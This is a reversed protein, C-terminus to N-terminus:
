SKFWEFDGFQSIKDVAKDVLRNYYDKDIDDEKGLMKVTESELWRFGKAGSASHYDGDKERLLEGGGKGKQIPCFAGAKGIFQYDHEGENLQENMDLYLATTVNKTECMDSFIVPEESFLKKFVYPEAFQKGTATWKGDSKQKAVYVADNVLCFKSYTEELDFVYGYKKGFEIVFDVIYQDINPIKISDTKVHAVVYGQEQVAFMLDIMFLAGRKAVINDINKPDKFPNDFKASTMGYVINIVIKLAYALDGVEDESKLYKALKGDLMKRAKDLEGNKIALRAQVLDEFNKTYPGFVNMNIASTPHMSAVDLLAVDEYMGPESYVYGGEGVDIGRYTSKGFDYKYGPFMHTLDTYEFKSQPNRDNGFIIKATHRQTTDNETLGSIDALIQRAVFDAKRDEFVAETAEVDNKCYEIVKDIMDDPVPEDWPIAMEIHNIGLAIMFKKLSQKVTSFELIDTFSINYAERFMANRSGDIIKQSLNYIQENTYGLHRAYLIHNDYRRCNFGVLKMSFLQEIEEPKPNMMVVPDSGQAKWVVLLMNPYVEVDFFVLRDDVYNNINESEVESKFEMDAVVKLAAAAQNTSNNAFSMVYPRLDTVDYPLDSEYADQLIKHIFDVSPKTSAHIEKNLNRKILTRLGKESKVNKDNIMSTDGKMPLGSNITTFGINNCKTLQRRLSSDGTFVKVEVDDDYIRSLKSVDGDYIYHLHLGKGSKSVETYTLPWERAAEMNLMLDKEGESNKIDFDIVIHQEPVQVYHLTGTDIDKLKKKNNVWKSIPTGESTTTQAPQELYTSDFISEMSELVIPNPVKEPQMAISDFKDSNFGSYYSRIQKGDVRTIDYFEDFYSKLEERFKHRAQKYEILAEDCYTKYMDYAQSLSVGDQEKFVHFYAEVFNYFIDTQLMMDIPKYNAYYNKGYNQYVELCHQAIAGLEFDVQSILSYYRTPELKNGTPKVDILRRIIGSKSDTIKVPKNTAMFLFCNVRSMYSPKYKENMTMDEHSVISNLKTNDEIRSLDGDHQIAVLPNDKFVETSFANSSSTLAKAEFTTYYSKFLSQVINLITSKGTGAEGYLVLFKQIHKAEGAIISGIAWEIKDREEPEYLTSIIEDYSDISGKILPYPLRKSVYDEKKVETNSFTLENDLAHSNDSMNQVYQKFEVWTKSSFDCMLKLHVAGVYREDMNDRYKRLENDVLRQVDYEDTSWLGAEEDWIAYFSKGRIMLDKTRTVRFDPYVEIVGNKTSKEKIKFFDM